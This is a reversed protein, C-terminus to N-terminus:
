ASQLVRDPRPGPRVPRAPTLSRPEAAACSSAPADAPARGVERWVADDVGRWLTLPDVASEAQM